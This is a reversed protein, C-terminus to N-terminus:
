LELEFQVRITRQFLDIPVVVVIKEDFKQEIVSRRIRNARVFIQRSYRIQVLEVGEKTAEVFVARRTSCRFERRIITEELRITKRRKVFLDESELRGLGTEKMPDRARRDVARMKEGNFIKRGGSM